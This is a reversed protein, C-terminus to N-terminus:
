GGSALALTAFMSLQEMSNFTSMVAALPQSLRNTLRKPPVHM